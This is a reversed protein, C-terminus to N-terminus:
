EEHEHEPCVADEEAVCVCGYFAELDPEEGEPPQFFKTRLQLSSVEEELEPLCEIPDEENEIASCMCDVEDETLLPPGHYEGEEGEESSPPPGRHSGAQHTKAHLKNHTRVRFGYASILLLALVAILFKNM